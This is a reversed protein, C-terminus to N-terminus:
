QLVSSYISVRVDRERGREREREREREGEVERGGVQLFPNVLHTVLLYILVLTMLSSQIYLYMHDHYLQLHTPLPIIFQTYTVIM